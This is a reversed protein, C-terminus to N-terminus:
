LRSKGPVANQAVSQTNVLRADKLTAGLTGAPAKIDGPIESAPRLQKEATLSEQPQIITTESMAKLSEAPESM